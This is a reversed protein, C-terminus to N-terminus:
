PASPSASSLWKCRLLDFAGLNAGPRKQKGPSAGIQRTHPMRAVRKVNGASESFNLTARMLKSDCLRKAHLESREGSQKGPKESQHEGGGQRHELRAGPDPAAARRGQAPLENRLDRFCVAVSAVQCLRLQSRMALARTQRLVHRITDLVRQLTRALDKQVIREGIFHVRDGNTFIQASAPTTTVMEYGDFRDRTQQVPDERRWYQHLYPYQTFGEDAYRIAPELITSWSVRGSGFQEFAAATGRVFSPVQISLYGRQQAAPNRGVYMDPRCLSGSRGLFDLVVHRGSPAHFVNMGGTGAISAMVPSVVCQAYAVALAADVASGGLRFIEAGVEAALPEPCAVVRRAM